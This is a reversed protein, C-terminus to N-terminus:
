KSIHRYALYGRHGFLSVSTPFFLPYNYFFFFVRLSGITKLNAEYVVSHVLIVGWDILTGFLGM